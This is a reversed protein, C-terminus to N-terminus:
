DQPWPQTKWIQHCMSQLVKFAYDQLIKCPEDPEDGRSAKNMAISGLARKVECLLIYLKLNTVMGDHNDM